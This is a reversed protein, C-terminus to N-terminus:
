YSRLISKPGHSKNFSIDIITLVAHYDRMDIFLHTYRNTKKKHIQKSNICKLVIEVSYQLLTFYAFPEECFKKIFVGGTDMVLREPQQSCPQSTLVVFIIKIVNQLRHIQV